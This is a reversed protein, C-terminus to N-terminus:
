PCRCDRPKSEERTNGITCPPVIAATEVRTADNFATSRGQDAMDMEPTVSNTKLGTYARAGIIKPRRRLDSQALKMSIMGLRTHFGHYPRMQGPKLCGKRYRHQTALSRSHGLVSQKENVMM